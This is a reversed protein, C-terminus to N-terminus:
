FEFKEAKKGGLRKKDGTEIKWTSGDYSKNTGDDAYLICCGADVRFYMSGRTMTMHFSSNDNFSRGLGEIIIEENDYFGWNLPSKTIKYGQKLKMKITNSIFEAIAPKNETFGSIEVSIPKKNDNLKIHVDGYIDGHSTFLTINKSDKYKEYLKDIESKKSVPTATKKTQANICTTFLTLLLLFINKM